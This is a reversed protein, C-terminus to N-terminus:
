LTKSFLPRADMKQERLYRDFPMALNRIFIRGLPTVRIESASLLVLGDDRMPALEALEAA